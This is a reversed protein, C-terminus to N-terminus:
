PPVLDSRQRLGSKQDPGRVEPSITPRCPWCANVGVSNFGQHVVDSSEKIGSLNLAGNQDSM